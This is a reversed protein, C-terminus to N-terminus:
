RMEFDFTARFSEWVSNMVVELHVKKEEETIRKIIMEEMKFYKKIFEYANKRNTITRIFRQMVLLSGKVVEYLRINEAPSTGYDQAVPMGYKKKLSGDSLDLTALLRPIRPWFNSGASKAQELVAMSCVLVEANTHSMFGLLGDILKEYSALTSRDLPDGLKANKRLRLYIEQVSMKGFTKVLIEARIAMYNRSICKGPFLENAGPEYDQNYRSNADIITCAAEFM